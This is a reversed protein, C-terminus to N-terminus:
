KLGLREILSKSYQRSVILKEGNRLVAELRGGFDPCLTDIKAINLIQSKGTRIFGRDTLQAEIEYLKLTTEFEDNETYIFCRKDVSEFYLVDKTDIIHIKGNKSGSLKDKCSKLMAAMRSIEDTTQPCEIIVEIDTCGEVIEIKM